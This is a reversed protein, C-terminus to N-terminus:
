QPFGKIAGCAGSSSLAVVSALRLHEKVPINAPIRLDNQPCTKSTKAFPIQTEVALFVDESSSLIPEIRDTQTDREACVKEPGKKQILKLM